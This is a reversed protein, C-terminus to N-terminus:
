EGTAAQEEYRLGQVLLQYDVASSGPPAVDFLFPLEEGPSIPGDLVLEHYGSIRGLVDYLTAVLSIQVATEDGRNQVQGALTVRGEEVTIEAAVVALDLYRSGFDLLTQGGIVAALPAQVTGPAQLLLAAFPARQGPLLISPTVWAVATVAAAGGEAPITIEVQVNEAPWEGENLVEGLLWVTDLPTYYPTVSTVRIRLPVPTNVAAPMLPAAPPPLQIAQGIQLLEPRIGPNLEKIEDVSTRRVIAIALLTDGPEILYVIPTATPTVTATPLPTPTTQVVVATPPALTALTVGIAPTATAAPRPTPTVTPATQPPRSCQVVSVLLLLAIPYFNTFYM